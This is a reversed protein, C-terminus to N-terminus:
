AAAAAERVVAEADEIVAARVEPSPALLEHLSPLAGVDDPLPLWAAPDHPEARAPSPSVLADLSLDDLSPLASPDPVPLWADPDYPVARAPSPRVSHAVFRPM